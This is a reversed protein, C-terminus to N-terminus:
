LSNINKRLDRAWREFQIRTRRNAIVVDAREVSLNFARIDDRVLGKFLLQKSQGDILMVNLTAAGFQRLFFDTSGTFQNPQPLNNVFDTVNLQVILTQADAQSLEILKQNKLKVLQEGFIESAQNEIRAKTKPALEYNANRDRRNFRDKGPRYEFELWQIAVTKYNSADFDPSVWAEDLKGTKYPIFNEPIDITNESALASGISLLTISFVIIKRNITFFAM